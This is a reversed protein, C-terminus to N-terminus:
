LGLTQKRQRVLAKHEADMARSLNFLLEGYPDAPAAQNGFREAGTSHARNRTQEIAKVLADFAKVSVVGAGGALAPIRGVMWALLRGAVPLLAPCFVFIAILGGLVIIVAASRKFWTVRRENRAQEYHEGFRILRDENRRQKALLARSESFREALDARAVTLAAENTGTAALLDAVAIPELPFGEIRQDQQALQLAVTTFEDRQDMPQLQLADVVGTTFARSHEDLQTAVRLRSQAVHTCGSGLTVAGIAVLVLVTKM